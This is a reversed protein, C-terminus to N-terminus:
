LETLQPRKQSLSLCSKDSQFKQGWWQDCSPPQSIVPFFADFLRLASSILHKGVCCLELASGRSSIRGFMCAHLHKAVRVALSWKILKNQKLSAITPLYM